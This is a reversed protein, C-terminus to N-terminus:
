VGAAHGEAVDVPEAVDELLVDPRVHDQGLRALRRERRIVQQVPQGVIVGAPDAPRADLRVDALQRQDDDHGVAEAPEVGVVGLARRVGAVDRLFQDVNTSRLKGAFRERAARHM